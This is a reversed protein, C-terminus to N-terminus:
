APRTRSTRTAREKLTNLPSEFWRWSLLSLALTFATAAVFGVMGAQRFPIGGRDLLSALVPLSFMHYVYVGYSIKGLHRLLGTELIAGAVGGFGRAARYIIWAFVMSGAFERFMVGFAWAGKFLFPVSYVILGVTLMVRELKGGLRERTEPGCAAWAAIASGLGLSDLHMWPTAYASVSWGWDLRAAEPTTFFQTDYLWWARVLLPVISVALITPLLRRKPLVLVLLPWVMYFQQEVCLTWFHTFHTAWENTAAMRLNLSYTLLWGALERAPALNFLIATAVTLYYLPFIRLARKLYFSRLGAGWSQTGAEIQDRSRILIRTILFGSLVFFLRVGGVAFWAATSMGYFYEQYHHIVVGIVALGRLGDLQVMHGPNAARPPAASPMAVTGVAALKLSADNTDM